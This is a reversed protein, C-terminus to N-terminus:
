RRERTLGGFIDTEKGTVSDIPGSPGKVRRFHETAWVRHGLGDALAYFPGDLAIQSAHARMADVKAEAFDGGDVATTIVEDPVVFTLGDPDTIGFFSSGSEALAEIGAAMMSRAMSTWYVKPVDWAPGHEPRYAPAAALAAAYTAVRHAQIHDPHGYGGNEDYTLMVHPRRSRVVPVLLDAAVLLDAQWFADPRDNSPTGMMGSDRFRGPGGLFTHDVVGLATMAVDLESRRHEGLRDERDAALHELSPVLVEGEEGLTCTVLSVQAGEAAYRAM